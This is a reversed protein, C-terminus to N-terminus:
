YPGAIEMFDAFHEVALVFHPAHLVKQLVYNDLYVIVTGKKLLKDILAIDIKQNVM